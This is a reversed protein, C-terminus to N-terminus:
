LEKEERRPTYEGYVSRLGPVRGVVVAAGLVVHTVMWEVWRGVGLGEVVRGVVPLSEVDFLVPWNDLGWFVVWLKWTLLWERPRGNGAKVEDAIVSSLNRFFVEKKGDAPDTWERVVLEQGEEDGAGDGGLVADARRWEHRAFRPVTIVGDGSTYSETRGNLTM